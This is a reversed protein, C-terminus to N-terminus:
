PLPINKLVIPITRQVVSGPVEYIFTYGQRDTPLEFLYAIGIEDDALRSTRFGQNILKKGDSGLVVAENSLVWGRYSDFVGLNNQLMLSMDLEVFEGRVQPAKLAVTMDGHKLKVEEKANLDTFRFSQLSGPLVTDIEFRVEKLEKCERPPSPFQLVIETACLGEAPSYETNSKPNLSVIAEGNDLVGQMSAGPISMFIPTALPEWAVQVTLTMRGSELSTLDRSIEVLSAEGRFAGSYCASAQRKVGRVNPYVQFEGSGGYLDVDLSAQDLVQDVAQWYLVDNLDIALSGNEGDNVQYKQGVVKGLRELVESIKLSGSVSLRQGSIKKEIAQIDLKARIRQLRMSVESTVRSDVAPLFPIIDLGLQVLQEEAANREALSDADLNKILRSVQQQTSTDTSPKVNQALVATACVAAILVGLSVSFTNRILVAIIVPM